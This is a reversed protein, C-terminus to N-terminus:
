TLRERIKQCHVMTTICIEVDVKDVDLLREVLGRLTFNRQRSGLIDGITGM